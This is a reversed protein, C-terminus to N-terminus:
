KKTAKSDKLEKTIKETANLYFELIFTSYELWNNPQLNKLINMYINLKHPSKQNLAYDLLWQLITQLHHFM